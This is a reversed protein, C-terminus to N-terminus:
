KLDKITQGNKSKQLHTFYDRPFIQRITKEIKGPTVGSSGSARCTASSVGYGKKIIFWIARGAALTEKRSLEREKGRWRIKRPIYAQMTKVQIDLLHENNNM